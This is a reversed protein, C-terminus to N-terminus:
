SAPVETGDEAWQTHFMGPKDIRAYTHSGFFDRQGQILAAPLRKARVGDYYALSAAFAPVPVGALAAQAVVRRLAPICEEVAERFHRAALLLPVPNEGGSSGEADETRAGPTSTGSHEGAASEDDVSAENTTGAGDRSVKADNAEAAGHLDAAQNGTRKAAGAYAAAIEDLFAARIICGERWIKAVAALDIQWDYEVAAAYIQDFGQSYAVVKSAYLAKRVDETVADADDVQWAEALAALEQGAERQPVSSSLARAFTAEAIGTVPVGLDLADQVTWRGTGKQGAQDLIVDVLPKGTEADVQDLVEATIEILYSELETTNWARFVEALAAPELELAGRLLSYAEAILQMDAYEIGNHVMKVYHGSGDTSIHTCCAEGDDAKAAISELMPGVRGYAEDSCGPMISPGHLAGEAGGSVGAGVFLLGDERLEKERRITDTYLSNGGDIIIDGPELFEKVNGIVEDTIPGAVVMILVVRPRTLSAVFDALEAAPVFTGEDGHEDLVAQTKATTVNYIGVAHGHRALNRALRSGMVGMGIVGIDATTPSPAAFSIDTM